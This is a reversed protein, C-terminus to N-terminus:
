IQEDGYYAILSEALGQSVEQNPLGLVFAKRRADYEQVTLYGSQYFMPLPSTMSETPVDFEPARAVCGDLDAISWKYARLLRILSTPTGTGFWYSGIQRELLAYLLSFPNYIDPSPMCFHYGDYQKKLEAFAEEVTIGLDDALAEVGPALREELEQQTIGCLAAFQPNMSIDVLNNLESFISLQSFKTIGTLFVFDLHDDCAKLSVFFERMIQRFEELLDPDDVVSLFPTDYEDVLVVVQKGSQEHAREILTRLRSGLTEEKLELGFRSANDELVRGVQTILGQPDRARATSLDLRLVPREDWKEELKEIALGRFLDRRGEFYAQMTSLLLTKGFRRPRSLFAYKPVFELLRYILDTKDIYVFGKERIDSFTQIGVPYRQIEGQAM